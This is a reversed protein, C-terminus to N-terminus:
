DILKATAPFHVALSLRQKLLSTPAQPHSAATQDLSQPTGPTHTAVLLAMPTVTVNNGEM